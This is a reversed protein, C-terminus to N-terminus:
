NFISSRYYKSQDYKLDRLLSASVGIFFSYNSYYSIPAWTLTMNWTGLSRAFNFRLDTIQSAEFDYGTSMEMKWKQSFALSGSLTLSNTKTPTKSVKSYSYTYSLRISWDPAYDMYGDPDYTGESDGNNKNQSSSKGQGEKKKRFDAQSVTFGTNFSAFTLRPPGYEDIRNYNEDVKYPSFNFRFNLNIRDQFFNTSGSIPIDSLKFQAAAFNYSISTNLNNLLKIKKTKTGTSDSKDAVKAEFNNSLSFSLSQQQGGFGPPSSIGVGADFYSFYQLEALRDGTQVAYYYGWFETSFDPSFTYQLTPSVVHRIARLSGKEGFNFLGYLMTSLSASTSFTRLAKFGSLTDTVLTGSDEDWHKQTYKFNWDENYNASLSLSFYKLVKYTASIPIRHTVGMKAKKWMNSTMFDSIPLDSVSNTETMTWQLNIKEYWKRGDSEKRKFPYIRNMTVLLTPFTLSMRDTSNNQSQNITLSTTFPSSGWTKSLNISSSTVSNTIYNNTYIQDLSNQYYGSSSFNVNASLSLGPMWKSDQRHSWTLSWPRSKSYNPLGIEGYVTNSFDFSLSGSFHYKWIYNLTTRIAWSGKTYIDGRVEAHLYDNFVLYYGLNRLGFGQDNTVDYSPLLVGSAPYTNLPFFAFPLVLPTPVDAIYLQSFGAVLSEGATMKVRSSRIYYDTEEGTGDIWGRLKEDTSFYFDSAYYVNEGEKRVDRGAGYGEQQSTKVNRIYGRQTNYDYVMSYADYQQDGQTFIPKQTQVGNSDLISRAYAIGNAYDLMIYGAEIKVDGYVIQAEDYFYARKTTEDIDYFGKAQYNVDSMLIRDKKRVTSDAVMLSDPFPDVTTSDGPFLGPVEEPFAVQDGTRSLSDPPRSPLGLVSLVTTDAPLLAVNGEAPAIHAYAAQAFFALLLFFTLIGKRNTYLANLHYNQQPTARTGTNEGSPKVLSLIILNKRSQSDKRANIRHSIQDKGTKRFLIIPLTNIIFLIHKHFFIPDESPTGSSPNPHKEQQGGPKERTPRIGLRPVLPFEDDHQIGAM